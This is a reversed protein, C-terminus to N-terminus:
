VICYYYYCGEPSAPVYNVSAPTVPECSYCRCPQSPLAQLVYDVSAPSVSYLQYHTVPMIPKKLSLTYSILLGEGRKQHYPMVCYSSGDVQLSKQGLCSHPGPEVPCEVVLMETGNIVVGCLPGVWTDHDVAGRSGGAGNAPVNCCCLKGGRRVPPMPWGVTATAAPKQRDGADSGKGGFSTSFTCDPCNTSIRSSRVSM